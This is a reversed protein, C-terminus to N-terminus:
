MNNASLVEARQLREPDVEFGLGHGTPVQVVGRQVENSQRYEQHPGMNPVVSALHLMPTATAGTKPSHPTVPLNAARALQAVRLTRILGGNYYVDPQVLNVARNRIMWRFRPFSSDQEGGAVTMELADAVEKTQEHEEWPCPEELFGVQHEQLFRGMEIAERPTYSGNADVYIAVEEGLTRRALEVMRRDRRTQAPSNRMRLGIKLKVARAGTAALARQATNVEQEPSSDRNFRSIYVPIETRRVQGFLAGVPRRALKGLMDFLALEVHAVANWFPMGAYKYNSNHLYVGDILAELDRADKNVFFPVVRRQLLSLLDLLRSGAALGEEGNTSRVRVYFDEGVRLAEVSRIRIPEAFVGRLNLLPQDSEAPSKQNQATTEGANTHFAGLAGLTAQTFTRRNM